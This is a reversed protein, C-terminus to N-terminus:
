THILTKLRKAKEEAQLKSASTKLLYALVLSKPMIEAPALRPLMAPALLTLTKTAFRPTAFRTKRETARSRIPITSFFRIKRSNRCKSFASDSSRNSHAMPELLGKTPNLSIMAELYKNSNQAKIRKSVLTEVKKYISCAFITRSTKGVRSALIAANAFISRM